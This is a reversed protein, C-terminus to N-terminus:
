RSRLINSIRLITQYRLVMSIYSEFSPLILSTEKSTNLSPAYYGSPACGGYGWITKYENFSDDSPTPLQLMYNLIVKKTFLTNESEEGTLFTEHIKAVLNDKIRRILSAVTAYTQAESSTESEELEKCNKLYTQKETEMAEVKEPLVTYPELALSTDVFKEITSQSYWPPLAKRLSLIAEKVSDLKATLKAIDQEHKLLRAQLQDIEEKSPYGPLKQYVWARTQKYKTQLNGWLIQAVKRTAEQWGQPTTSISVMMSLGEEPTLSPTSEPAKAEVILKEYKAKLALDQALEIEEKIKAELLSFVQFMYTNYTQVIKKEDKEKAKYADIEGLLTQISKKGERPLVISTQKLTDKITTILLQITQLQKKQQMELEELTAIQMALVEPPTPPPVGPPKCDFMLEEYTRKQPDVYLFISHAGTNNLTKTQSFDLHAQYKRSKAPVPNYPILMDQNELKAPKLFREDFTTKTEFPQGKTKKAYSDLFHINLFMSEFAKESPLRAYGCAKVLRKQGEPLQDYIADDYDQCPIRANYELLTEAKCNTIEFSM